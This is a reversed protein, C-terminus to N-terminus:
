SDKFNYGDYKKTESDITVNLHGNLLFFNRM